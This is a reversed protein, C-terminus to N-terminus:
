ATLQLNTNNFIIEEGNNNIIVIKKYGKLFNEKLIIEKQLAFKVNGRFLTINQIDLKSYTAM